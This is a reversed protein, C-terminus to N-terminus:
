NPINIVTNLGQNTIGATGGIAGLMAAAGLNASPFTTTSATSFTWEYDDKLYTGDINKVLSASIFGKYTTHPMLPLTPLFFAASDLYSVSGEIADGGVPTITFSTTTLTTVNMVDNFTVTIIKDYAVQAEDNAPNSANAEPCVGPVEIYDDGRCGATLVVTTLAFATLLRNTKM